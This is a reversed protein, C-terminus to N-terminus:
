GAIRLAISASLWPVIRSASNIISLATDVARFPLVM